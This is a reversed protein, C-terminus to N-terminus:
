VLSIPQQRFGPFVQQFASSPNSWLKMQNSNMRCTELNLDYHLSQVAATNVRCVNKVTIETEKNHRIWNACPGVVEQWSFIYKFNLKQMKGLSDSNCLLLQGCMFYHWHWWKEVVTDKYQAKSTLERAKYPNETTKSLCQFKQSLVVTVGM